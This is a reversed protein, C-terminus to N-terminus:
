LSYKAAKFHTQFFFKAFSLQASNYNSCVSLSFKQFLYSIIIVMMVKSRVLLYSKKEGQFIESIFCHLVEKTIDDSALSQFLANHFYQIDIDIDIDM